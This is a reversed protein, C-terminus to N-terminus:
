KKRVSVHLVQQGNGENGDVMFSRKSNDYLPFIQRAASSFTGTFSLPAEIPYDLDEPVRIVETM